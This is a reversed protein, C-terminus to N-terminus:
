GASGPQPDARLPSSDDLTIRVRIPLTVELVQDPLGEKVLAPVPTTLDATRDSEDAVPTLPGDAAVEPDGRWQWTRLADDRVPRMRLPLDADRVAAVIRSVRIGENAAWVHADTSGAELLRGRGDVLRGEEDAAPVGSHHLAVVEWFDNFVPSGSSGKETDAEYHFFADMGEGEPLDVLRNNRITVQKVRGSPHQVVNVAEGIRIKGEEGILPLVRYDDLETGRQSTTSVGVLAFDLGADALFFRDPELAFIQTQRAEGVRNDEFDLELESDRAEGATRLVHENTLMLGPAVLFGTGNAEGRTVVLGVCRAALLGLEFFEISLMDRTEGIIREVLDNSIDERRVPERQPRGAGALSESRDLGLRAGPDDARGVDSGRQRDELVRLWRRHRDVWRSLREPSDAEVYDREDLARLKQERDAARDQWRRAAQQLRATHDQQTTM